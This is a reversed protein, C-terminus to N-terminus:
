ALLGLRKGESQSCIGALSRHITPHPKRQSSGGPINGPLDGLSEKSIRIYVYGNCTTLVANRERNAKKM